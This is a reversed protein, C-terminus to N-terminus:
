RARMRNEIRGGGGSERPLEIFEVGFIYYMGLVRALERTVDRRQTRSCGRDAESLLIVDPDPSDPGLLWAIQEDLALGREINYAMIVLSDKVPAPTTVFSAGELRCDVFVKEAAGDPDAAEACLRDISVDPVQSSWGFEDFEYGALPKTTKGCGFTLASLLIISYIAVRAKGLHLLNAVGRCRQPLTKPSFQLSHRDPM